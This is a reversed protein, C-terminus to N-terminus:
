IKSLLDQLTELKKQLQERQSPVGFKINSEIIKINKELDEKSLKAKKLRVVEKKDEKEALKAEALIQDAEAKAKKKAMAEVEKSVQEKDLGLSELSNKIKMKDIANNIMTIKKTGAKWVEPIGLEKFKALLDHYKVERLEEITIQKKESM